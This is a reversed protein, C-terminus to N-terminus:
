EESRFYHWVGDDAIAIVFGAGNSAGGTKRFGPDTPTAGAIFQNQYAAVLAGGGSIGRALKVSKTPDGSFRALNSDNGLGFILLCNDLTTTVSPFVVVPQGAAAAIASKHIPSTQNAGRVVLAIAHIDESLTSSIVADAEDDSAALRYWAYTRQANLAAQASGFAASWAGGGISFVGSGVDQQVIVILLDGPQHGTPIPIAISAAASVDGIVYDAAFVYAM